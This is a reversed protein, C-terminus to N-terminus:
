PIAVMFLASPAARSGECFVRPSKLGSSWLSAWSVSSCPAVGQSHEQCCSQFLCRPKHTQASCSGRTVTTRAPPGARVETQVTGAAAQLFQSAVTSVVPSVGLYVLDSPKDLYFLFPSFHPSWFFAATFLGHEAAPWPGPELSAAARVRGGHSV